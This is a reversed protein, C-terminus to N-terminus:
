IEESCLMVNSVPNVALAPETKLAAISGQPPLASGNFIVASEEM